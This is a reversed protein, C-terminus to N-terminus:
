VQRISVASVLDESTVRHAGRVMQMDEAALSYAVELDIPKAGQEPVEVRVACVDHQVEPHIVFSSMSGFAYTREGSAVVLRPLGENANGDVGFDHVRYPDNLRFALYPSRAAARGRNVISLIIKLLHRTGLGAGSISGAPRISVILQLDPRRRRGFMDAVDYHEMRYFSDGSRKYYRDEGGKAMHPGTDSEPILTLAVGKEGTTSIGRHQVGDVIPDVFSGTLENLRAVFQAIPDIEIIAQARDIDGSGKRADIGWIVIGGSSNAFGSLVKALNRKDDDSRLSAARVTKFELHLHEEQGQAVYSALDQYSLQLFHTLLNMDSHTYHSHRGSIGNVFDTKSRGNHYYSCQHVSLSFRM